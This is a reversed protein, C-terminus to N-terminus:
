SRYCLRPGGWSVSQPDPDPFYNALDALAKARDRLIQLQPAPLPEGRRPIIDHKIDAHGSFEERTDIISAGLQRIQRASLVALGTYIKGEGPDELDKAHQKCADPGIWDTRMTSVEDTDYPPTYAAPKLKGNKRVHHPTCIGRAIVEADAIERPWASM